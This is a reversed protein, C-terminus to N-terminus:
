SQELFIDIENIKSYKALAKLYIFMSFATYKWWM